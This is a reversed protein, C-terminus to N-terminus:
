LSKIIKKGEKIEDHVNKNEKKVYDVFNKSNSLFGLILLPYSIGLYKAGRSIFDDETLVPEGNIELVYFDDGRLKMDLRSYFRCTTKESAVRAIEVAMKILKEDIQPPLNLYNSASKKIKRDYILGDYIIEMPTLVIDKGFLKVCPVTIEKGRIYEEVLLKSYKRSLLNIIKRLEEKNFCVGIGESSSGFNDKVVLPFKNEFFELLFVCEDDKSNKLDLLFSRPTKIKNKNLISNTKFKDRATLFACEDQGVFDVRNEEIFSLLVNRRSYDIPNSDLIFFLDVGSLKTKSFDANNLNIRKSAINREGLVKEVDLVARINYLDEEGKGGFVLGVVFNNKKM